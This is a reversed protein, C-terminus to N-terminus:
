LLKKYHSLLIKLVVLSFLRHIDLKIVEPLFYQSKVTCVNTPQNVWKEFVVFEIQMFNPEYKWCRQWFKVTVKQSTSTLTWPSYLWTYYSPQSKFYKWLIECDSRYQAVPLLKVNCRQHGVSFCLVVFHYRLQDSVLLYTFSDDLSSTQISLQTSM